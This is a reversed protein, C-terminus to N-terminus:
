TGSKCTYLNKSEIDEVSRFKFEKQRLEVHELKFGAKELRRSLEQVPDKEDYYPNVFKKLDMYEKYKDEKSIEICIDYFCHRVLFLLVFSGGPKM